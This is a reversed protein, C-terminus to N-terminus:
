KRDGATIIFEEQYPKYSKPTNMNNNNEIPYL